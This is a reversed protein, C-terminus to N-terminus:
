HSLPKEPKTIGSATHKNTHIIITNHLTNRSTKTLSLEQNLYDMFQRPTEFYVFGKNNVYEDTIGYETRIDDPIMSVYIRMYEPTPLVTNLYMNHIDLACYKADPSSIIPNTHIKVTEIDATETSINGTYTGALFIGEATMRVQHKEEKQPRIDAVWRSFCAKKNNKCKKKLIPHMINTGQIGGGGRMLKRLKNSVGRRWIKRTAPNKHNILAKIEM